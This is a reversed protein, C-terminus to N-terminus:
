IDERELCILKVNVRKCLAGFCFIHALEARPIPRYVRLMKTVREDEVVISHKKPPPSSPNISAPM